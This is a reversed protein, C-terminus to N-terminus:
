VRWISIALSCKKNHIFNHLPNSLDATNRILHTRERFKLSASLREFYSFSVNTLSIMSGKYITHGTIDYVIIRGGLISWIAGVCIGTKQM